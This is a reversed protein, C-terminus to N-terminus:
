LKNYQQLKVRFAQLLYSSGGAKLSNTWQAASAMIDNTGGERTHTVLSTQWKNVETSYAM